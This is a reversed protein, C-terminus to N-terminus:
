LGPLGIVALPDRREEGLVDLVAVVGVVIRDGAAIRHDLRPQPLALVLLSRSAIVLARVVRRIGRNDDVAIDGHGGTRAGVELTGAAGDVLDVVIAVHHPEVGLPPATLEGLPEYLPRVCLMLRMCSLSM